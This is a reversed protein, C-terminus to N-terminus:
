PKSAQLGAALRSSLDLPGEACVQEGAERPLARALWDQPTVQLGLSQHDILPDRHFIQFALHEEGGWDPTSTPNLTLLTDTGLAWHM